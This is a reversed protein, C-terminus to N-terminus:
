PIYIKPSLFGGEVENQRSEYDLALQDNSDDSVLKELKTAASLVVM